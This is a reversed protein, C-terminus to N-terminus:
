ILDDDGPMSPGSGVSSAEHAEVWEVLRGVEGLPLANPLTGDPSWRVDLPMTLFLEIQFSNVYAISPSVDARRFELLARGSNVYRGNPGFRDGYLVLRAVMVSGSATTLRITEAGTDTTSM